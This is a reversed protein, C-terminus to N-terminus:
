YDTVDFVRDKYYYQRDAETIERLVKCPNGVAIVNAPINKTVISGAGIVTNDGVEVGPNVVVNSGLWVSNGIKIEIGYEYGSNRSQPHIPHGATLISVNTAFQVNDGIVVKAVDLIILGYNAFFNNGIEINFGYDCRFPQNIYVGAGCKGLIARLLEDLKQVDDPPTNNYEYLKRQAIARAEPLGDLSAKYPLGALMRQKHNM